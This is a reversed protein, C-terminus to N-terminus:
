KTEKFLILESDLSSPIRVVIGSQMIEYGTLIVKDGSNDFLVQYKTQLSLGRPYITIRDGKFNQPTLIVIVGSKKDESTEELIIPEGNLFGDYEPTHHYIKCKPLWPRIETKYLSISRRIFEIQEDNYEYDAGSFVNMSIHGLMSKRMQARLSAITHSGMGAVLRDVKEPPIVLTMGNTIVSGMPSTQEDSVWTHNFAKLMEFDCRAGGSACNEFIVDPFKSHLESYLRYVANTLKVSACEVRNAGSMYFLDEATTNYDVRFLDVEYEKIVRSCENFVYSYARPNTLDILNSTNGNVKKLLWESHEKFAKSNEGLREPEMWLGFKLGKSHCYKSIESIGSPYREANFVWDGNSKYWDLQEGLPSAWGADVIFAECGISAMQDIYKKTTYVTMDHEAGMGAGVLCASSDSEKRTFVSNRLHSFTSNVADDIDGHIYGIDLTPSTFSEGASLNYLPTYGTIYAGFSLASRDCNPSGNLNFKFEFGGAWGLEAFYITGNYKNKLMFSPYRFRNRGFKGSISTIEHTLDHWAFQGEQGWGDGDMYGLSWIDDCKGKVGKMIEMGGAMIGLKSISIPKDSINKVAISRSIIGTGDISTLLSIEVPLINSKLKVISNKRNKNSSIECGIFTLNYNLNVGDIEIDFANPFPFDSYKFRTPLCQLVDLPYGSCNWGASILSGNVFSEEYVTLGSRYCIVPTEGEQFHIDTFNSM